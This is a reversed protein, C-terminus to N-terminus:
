ALCPVVILLYRAQVEGVGLIVAMVVASSMVSVLAASQRPARLVGVLSAGLLMASAGHALGPHILPVTSRPVALLTDPNASLDSTAFFLYGDAGVLARAKSFLYAPYNSFHLHVEDILRRLAFSTREDGPIAPWLYQNWVYMDGWRQSALLNLSSALRLLQLNQLSVPVLAQLVAGLGFFVAMVVGTQAMARRRDQSRPALLFCLVVAALLLVGVNRTLDIAFLVAGLLGLGLVRRGPELPEEVRVFLYLLTLLLLSTVHDPTIVTLSWVREPFVGYLCLAVVAAAAGLQRRVLLFLVGLTAAQLLANVVTLGKVSAGPWFGWPVTYLLSRAWFVLSPELYISQCANIRDAWSAADAAGCRYYVGFDSGQMSSFLTVWALGLLAFVGLMGLGIRNWRREGFHRALRPGTLGLGIGLGAGLLGPVADLSVAGALSLCLMLALAVYIVALPLSFATAERM